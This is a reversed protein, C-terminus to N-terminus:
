FANGIGIHIRHRPEGPRIDLKFGWDVRLPGLPTDYRFGFGMNYRWDSLRVFQLDRYVTGNDSFVVGGLKGVTITDSPRGFPTDIDLKEIDTLGDISYLASGGIVGIKAQPM